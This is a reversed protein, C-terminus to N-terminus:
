RHDDDSRARREEALARDLDLVLERQAGAEPGAGPRATAVTDAATTADLGLEMLACAAVTGARGIGAGCHVVIRDGARLADALRTLLPRIEALPPAHLDPIPAWWARDPVHRGLWEVYQPYRDHLEHRENLCLVREAGLRTLLADTDPGIAHKGCLWLSGAVGSPLPIADVGGDLARGLPWSTV